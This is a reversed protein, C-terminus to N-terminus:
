TAAAVSPHASPIRTPGSLSAWAENLRANAYSQVLPLVNARVLSDAKAGALLEPWPVDLHLIAADPGRPALRHTCRALTM